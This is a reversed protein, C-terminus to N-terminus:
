APQLPDPLIVTFTSGAGPQSDVTIKGNAIEVIRKAISLGLGNGSGSHSEDGQYFKDFIHEITEKNMGSGSDAVSVTIVDGDRRARLTIAGGDPTFKIANSLLNIWLQSMISENGYYTIEVESIDLDIHKEELETLFLLACTRLQEDLQYSKKEFVQEQNELKSLSLTNQALYTLRSSETIIINIFETREEATLEPNKLLKAFGCISTIPTKFEHSFNSVFDTKLTEISKLSQVMKNFSDYMENLYNESEPMKVDFDGKSVRTMAKLFGDFGHFIYNYILFAMGTGIFMSALGIFLIPFLPNTRAIVGSSVLALVVGLAVSVTITMSFFVYLVMRSRLTGFIGRRKRISQINKEM